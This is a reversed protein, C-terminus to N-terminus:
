VRRGTSPRDEEKGMRRERAQGEGSGTRDEKGNRAGKRAQGGAGRGDRGKKRDERGGEKRGGGRAREDGPTQRGLVGSETNEPEDKGGKVKRVGRVRTKGGQKKSKRGVKRKERGGERGQRDERGEGDEVNVEHEHAVGNGGKGGKRRGDKRGGVGGSEADIGGKRNRGRGKEDGGRDEMGEEERERWGRGRGAKGSGMRTERGWKATLRGWPVGGDREGGTRVNHPHLLAHVKKKRNKKKKRISENKHSSIPLPPSPHPTRFPLQTPAPAAPVTSASMSPTCCSKEFAILARAPFHPHPRPASQHNSTIQGFRRHEEPLDQRTPPRNAMMHGTQPVVDIEFGTRTYLGDPYICYECLRPFETQVNAQVDEASFLRCKLKHWGHLRGEIVKEFGGVVRVDGREYFYEGFCWAEPRLSARSIKYCYWMMKPVEM